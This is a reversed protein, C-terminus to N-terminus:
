FEGRARHKQLYEPLPKFRPPLTITQGHRSIFHTKVAESSYHDKIERSVILRFDDDLSILARDFAADYTASLCLGNRPDMRTDKSVAWPIIHSARNVAPLDLGTICCTKNYLSLIIERFAAQNVRTKILRVMEKGEQQVLDELLEAPFSNEQDLKAALDGESGSHSRFTEILKHVHEDEFLFELFSRLAASCYGDRLYSSPLNPLAWPSAPGLRTQELALQYLGSLRQISRVNWIDVCNGYGMPAVKLMESLLDLARVYSAAKGTPNPSESELYSKFREKLIQTSEM